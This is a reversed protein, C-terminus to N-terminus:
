VSNIKRQQAFWYTTLSHTHPHTHTFQSSSFFFFVESFYMRKRKAKGVNPLGVIAVRIKMSLICQSSSKYEQPYHIIIFRSTARRSVESGSLFVCTRSSTAPACCQYQYALVVHSPLLLLFFMLMLTPRSSCWSQIVYSSSMQSLSELM